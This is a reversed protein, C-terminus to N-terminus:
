RQQQININDTIFTVHLQETTTSNKNNYNKNKRNIKTRSNIYKKTIYYIDLLEFHNYFITYLSFLWFNQMIIVLREQSKLSKVPPNDYNPNISTSIKTQNFKTHISQHTTFKKLYMKITKYHV